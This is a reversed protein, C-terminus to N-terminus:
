AVFSNSQFIDRWLYFFEEILGVPIQRDSLERFRYNSIPPADLYSWLKKIAPMGEGHGQHFISVIWLSDFGSFLRYLKSWVILQGPRTERQKVDPIILDFFGFGGSGLCFNKGPTALNNPLLGHSVENRGGNIVGIAIRVNPVSILLDQGVYDGPITPSEIPRGEKQGTDILVSL